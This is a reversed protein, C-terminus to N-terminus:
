IDMCVDHCSFAKRIVPGKHPSDVPWRHIWMAITWYRLGKINRLQDGSGVTEFANEEVFYTTNQNFDTGLPSHLLSLGANTWITAQHWAPPLGNNSVIITKNVSTYIRRKAEILQHRSWSAWLYTIIADDFPFMKRTEPWKHPFNVPWRQIGRVLALSAPIQHKRQDAGSYVTWYVVVLSNIQSAMTSM